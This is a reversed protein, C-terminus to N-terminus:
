QTNKKTPLEAKSTKQEKAIKRAAEQARETLTKYNKDYKQVLAMMQPKVENMCERQKQPDIVTMCGRISPGLKEACEAFFQPAEQAVIKGVNLISDQVRKKIQAYEGAKRKMGQAQTEKAVKLMENAAAYIKADAEASFVPDVTKAKGPTYRVRVIMMGLNGCSAEVAKQKEAKSDVAVIGSHKSAPNSAQPQSPSNSKSSCGAVLLAILVLVRVHSLMLNREILNRDKNYPYSTYRSLRYFTTPM